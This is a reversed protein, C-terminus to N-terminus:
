RGASAKAKEKEQREHMKRWRDAIQGVVNFIRKSMKDYNGSVAATASGRWILQNTRSTWVEILLTGHTYTRGPMGPTSWASVWYSDWYWGSPYTYGLFPSDLSLDTTTSVRYAIYADPESEVKEYGGRFLRADVVEVIRDHLFPYDESLSAKPDDKWAYTHISSFDFEKDFDIHVDSALLPSSILLLCVGWAVRRSVIRGGPRARPLTSRDAARSCAALIGTKRCDKATQSRQM